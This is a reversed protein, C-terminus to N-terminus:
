ITKIDYPGDHRYIASGLYGGYGVDGEVNYTRILSCFKPSVTQETVHILRGSATAFVISKDALELPDPPVSLDRGVILYARRLRFEPASAGLECRLIVDSGMEEFDLIPDLGGDKVTCRLLLLFEGCVVEPLGILRWNRADTIRGQAASDYFWEVVQEYTPPSSLEGLEPQDFSITRNEDDTRFNRKAM